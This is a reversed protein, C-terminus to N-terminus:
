PYSFSWRLTALHGLTELSVMGPHHFPPVGRDIMQVNRPL